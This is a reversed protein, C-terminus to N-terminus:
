LSIHVQAIPILLVFVYIRKLTGTTLKLCGLIGFVIAAADWNERSEESQDSVDELDFNNGWPIRVYSHPTSVGPIAPRLLLADKTALIAIRYYPTPHPVPPVNVNFTPHLGVSLASNGPPSSAVGPPPPKQSLRFLKKM